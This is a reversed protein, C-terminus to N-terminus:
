GHMTVANPKLPVGLIFTVHFYIFTFSLSFSVKVISITQYKTRYTAIQSLSLSKAKKTIRCWSQLQEGPHQPPM